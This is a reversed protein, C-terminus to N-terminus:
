EHKFSARLLTPGAVKSLTWTINKEENPDRNRDDLIPPPERETDSAIARTSSSALLAALAERSLAESAVVLFLTEGDPSNHPALWSGPPPLLISERPQVEIPDAGVAPLAIEPSASGAARALYLFSREPAGVRLAFRDGSRFTGGPRLTLVGKASPRDLLLKASVV